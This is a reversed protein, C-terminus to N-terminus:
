GRRPSIAIPNSRSATARAHPRRGVPRGNHRPWKLKKLYKNTKARDFAEPDFSGGLWEMM